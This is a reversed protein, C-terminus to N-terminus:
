ASTLEAWEVAEEFWASEMWGEEAVAESAPEEVKCETAAEVEVEVAERLAVSCRRSVNLLRM